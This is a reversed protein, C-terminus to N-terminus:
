KDKDDKSDHNSNGVLHNREALLAAETRNSVNLKRLINGVHKKVTGESRGLHSAIQKDSKGKAILEMVKKEAPTLPSFNGPGPDIPSPEKERAAWRIMNLLERRSFGKSLPFAGAQGALELLEHYVTIMVVSLAPHIKRLDPLIRIGAQKDGLWAIDLVLVDPLKMKVLGPLELLETTSGVCEMDKAESIIKQLGEVAYVHDDGIAVRIKKM